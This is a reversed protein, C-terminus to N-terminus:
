IEEWGVPYVAPSWVNGDIVSEFAAGEFTVRDGKRYADHAGAPQAWAQPGAPGEEAKGLFRFLAPM